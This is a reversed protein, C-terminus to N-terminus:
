VFICQGEGRSDEGQKLAPNGSPRKNKPKQKEVALSTLYM